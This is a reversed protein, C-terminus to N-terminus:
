LRAMLGTGIITLVLTSIATYVYDRERLFFALMLAVRAIPLFIFLAVGVKIADYGHYSLVLPATTHHLMEVTLGVSIIVSALWTGDRLLRAVARECGRCDSPHESMPTEEYRKSM